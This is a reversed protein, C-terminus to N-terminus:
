QQVQLSVIMNENSNGYRMGSVPAAEQYDLGTAVRIYREDPSIANSVDFGVWGINEVFVEAWAHSAEQDVRENMMLYGSVYRAPYRMARAAGIFIHAHDQCVGAGGRFAAEASTMADTAGTKYVVNKHIAASLDHLYGVDDTTSAPIKQLLKMISSGPKTLPTQRLFLWLPAVGLHPGVIGDNITIDVEGHSTILIDRADPGLSILEVHNNHHDTYVAERRGGEIDTQWHIIAQGLTNKPTLRLQQLAYDVPEDYHYSTKHIVKLRM